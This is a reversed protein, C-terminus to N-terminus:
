ARALHKVNVALTAYGRSKINKAANIDLLGKSDIKFKEWITQEDYM